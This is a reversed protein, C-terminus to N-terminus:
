IYDEPFMEQDKEEISNEEEEEEDKNAMSAKKYDITEKLKTFNDIKDPKLLKDFVKYYFSQSHYIIEQMLINNQKALNSNSYFNSIIKKSTENSQDINMSYVKQDLKKINGLSQELIDLLSNNDYNMKDMNKLLNIDFNKIERELKLMTHHVDKIKESDVKLQSYKKYEEKVKEFLAIQEQYTKIEKEKKKKDNQSKVRENLVHHKQIQLESNAKDILEDVNIVRSSPNIISKKNDSAKSGSNSLKKEEAQQNEADDDQTGLATKSKLSEYNIAMTIAEYKDKLEAEQLSNYEIQKIYSNIMQETEKGKNSLLSLEIENIKEEYNNILSQINNMRVEELTEGEKLIVGGNRKIADNLELTLKEIEKKQEIETIMM